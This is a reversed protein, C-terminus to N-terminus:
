WQAVGAQASGTEGTTEDGARWTGPWPAHSAGDRALGAPFAWLDTGTEEAWDMTRGVMFASGGEYLIRTCADALPATLAVCSLAALATLFKRM